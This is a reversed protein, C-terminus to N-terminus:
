WPGLYPTRIMLNISLCDRSVSCKFFHRTWITCTYIIQTNLPAHTINERCLSLSAVVSPNSLVWWNAESGRGGCECMHRARQSYKASLERKTQSLSIFTSLGDPILLLTVEVISKSMECINWQLCTEATWADIIQRRMRTTLHWCASKLNIKFENKVCPLANMKVVM